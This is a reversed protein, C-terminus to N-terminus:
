VVTNEAVMANVIQGPTMIASRGSIWMSGFLAGVTNGKGEQRHVGSLPIVKGNVNLQKFEVEFKGSKGGIAKGTKWKILGLAKSGRPVAVVGNEVVDNVVTFEFSDGVKVKSSAIEKMPTMAVMTGARVMVPAMSPASQAVAAQAIVVPAISFAAACLGVRILRRM